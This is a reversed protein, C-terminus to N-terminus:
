AGCVSVLAAATGCHRAARTPRLLYAIGAAIATSLLLLFFRNGPHSAALTGAFAILLFAIAPAEPLVLRMHYLSSQSFLAVIALVFAGVRGVDTARVGLYFVLTAAAHLLAQGIAVYGPSTASGGLWTALRAYLPHRMEGWPNSSTETIFYSATDPAIEGSLMGLMGMTLLLAAAAGCLAWFWPESWEMTVASVSPAGGTERLQAEATM